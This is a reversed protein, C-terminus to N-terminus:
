KGESYFSNKLQLGIYYLKQKVEQLSRNGLNRVKTLDRESKELLDGITHINARRLCNYSRVSLDLDELPKQSVIEETSITILKPNNILNILFNKKIVLEETLKKIDDQLNVVEKGYRLKYLRAPHRLRRIARSEIQRVRERTVVLQNGIAELTYGEIYRLEIVLQERESITEFVEKINEEFHEEIYNIDVLECDGFLVEILNDPYSVKDKAFAKKYKVFAEAEKLTNFTKTYSKGARSINVLYKNNSTLVINNKIRQM